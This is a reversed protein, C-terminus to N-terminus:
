ELWRVSIIRGSEKMQQTTVKKETFEKLREPKVRDARIVVMDGFPESKESGLRETAELAADEADEMNGAALLVESYRPPETEDDWCRVECRWLTVGLENGEDDVNSRVDINLLLRWEDRLREQIEDMNLFEPRDKPTELVSRHEHAASDAGAPEAMEELDFAHLIKELKEKMAPEARVTVIKHEDVFVYFFPEETMAGFGCLGDEFFFDKLRRITDTYRDIGILDYSIYPDVERYDDQGLVDLIPYVRGRFLSFLQMCLARLREASIVADFLYRDPWEEWEAEGGGTGNDADSPEFLLTYGGKPTMEEVPYVGLPFQFSGVKLREVTQDARCRLPITLSGVDADDDSQPPKSPKRKKKKPKSGSGGPVLDDPRPDEPQLDDAQPDDPQPDDPGPNNMGQDV